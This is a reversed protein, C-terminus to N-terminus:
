DPAANKQEILFSNTEFISEEIQSTLSYNTKNVYQIFEIVSDQRILSCIYSDNEGEQRKLDYNEFINSNKKILENKIEKMKEEGAFSELEPYFFHCFKLDNSEPKNIMDEYISETITIIKNKLLFLLLIKNYKFINFIEDNSLSNKIKEGYFQLIQNIKDNFNRERRHNESINKIIKLFQKLQDLNNEIKQLKIEEHLKQFENENNAEESNKLFDLISNYLKKNSDIYSEM